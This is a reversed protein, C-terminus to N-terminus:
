LTKKKNAMAGSYVYIYKKRQIFTKLHLYIKFKEDSKEGSLPQVYFSSM